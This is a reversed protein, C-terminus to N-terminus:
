GWRGRRAPTGGAADPTPVVCTSFSFAYGRVGAAPFRLVLHRRRFVPSDVLRVLRPREWRALTHGNREIVDAGRETVPVPAGDMEIELEGAPELVLNVGSAEYVLDLEAGPERTELSEAGHYWLGRAAFMGPPAPGEERQRHRVEEEPRYGEPALLRGRHFGLHIERTAPYCVAGPRDEARVPALPEPMPGSDGAERLLRQIWEETEGYAGEGFHEYRLYGRADILYEAPWYHNAFRQWTEKDQDLLVPYAIGEGQVAAAVREPDASMEFEPTHVGVIVLGRGAYREQWANLYPLTRLCNVCTFEWFDVLVVAGRSFAISVEPGQIWRGPALEPAHLPVTIPPLTEAPEFAPRPM